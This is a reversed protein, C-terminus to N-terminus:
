SKAPMTPHPASEWTGLVSQDLDINTGTMLGSERSALFAVARAVEKPDVLRGFPQEASAKELWGDKAGHHKRM